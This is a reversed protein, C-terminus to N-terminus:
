RVSVTANAKLLLVSDLALTFLYFVLVWAWFSAQQFDPSLFALLLGLGLVIGMRIGTGGLALWIHDRPSTCALRSCVTTLASPLFCLGAAVGSEILARFGWFRFAPYALIVWFTACGVILILIPRIV